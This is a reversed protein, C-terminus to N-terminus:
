SNGVSSDVPYFVGIQKRIEDIIEITVLSNHHSNVESEIKGSNVLDIFEAIEYYYDNKFNNILNLNKDGQRFNMIKINGNRLKLTVSSINNIKDIIISGDEGQIESFLSSDVIKSYMITATMDNYEFNVTGQGDVGTELLLGAANINQPKGFLVVMPYITYIGIDIVAGNSLEPKFANQVIGAKLDDYRSSYQCYCAFYHRIKGIETIFDKITKFGPKLTPMMAEMLTVRNKQSSEIMKRVEKANSAMPKECLVHKGNEMFLIAQRAHLSNPSAIYVADIVNSKAMEELSTFFHPINHKIAFNKARELNRSYVASLIFRTDQKAAAIIKESIGSTGVIGFKIKKM